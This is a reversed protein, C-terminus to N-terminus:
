STRAALEESSFGTIREYAPNGYILRGSETIILGQGLDSIAGLLSEYRERRRESVTTIAGTFVATLLIIGTRYVVSSIQPPFGFVIDRLAYFGTFAASFSAAFVVGGRWRYLVAAEIAVLGYAAYSTSYIDNATLLTWA